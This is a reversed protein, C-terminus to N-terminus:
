KRKRRWISRGGRSGGDSQSVGAGAAANVTWGAFLKELEAKM